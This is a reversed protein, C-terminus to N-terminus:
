HDCNSDDDNDDENDDNDYRAMGRWGSLQSIPPCM